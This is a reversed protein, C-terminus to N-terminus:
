VCPLCESIHLAISSHMAASTGCGLVASQQLDLACGPIPIAHFPSSSTHSSHKGLHGAVAGDGNSSTTHTSGNDAAPVPMGRCGLQLGDYVAFGRHHVAGQFPLGASLLAKPM